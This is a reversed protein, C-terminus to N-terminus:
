GGWRLRHKDCSIMLWVWLKNLGHVEIDQRCKVLYAKSHKLYGFDGGREHWWCCCFYAVKHDVDQKAERGLSTEIRRHQGQKREATTHQCHVHGCDVLACSGSAWGWSRAAFHVNGSNGLLGQGFAVKLFTGSTYGHGKKCGYCACLWTKHKHV